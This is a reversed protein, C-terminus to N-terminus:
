CSFIVFLVHKSVAISNPTFASTERKSADICRVAFNHTQTQQEKVDGDLNVRFTVM